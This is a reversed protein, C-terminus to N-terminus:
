YIQLDLFLYKDFRGLHKASNERTTTETFSVSSIQVNHKSAKM